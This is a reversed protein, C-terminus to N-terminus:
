TEDGVYIVALVMRALDRMWLWQSREFANSVPATFDLAAAVQCVRVVESLIAEAPDERMSLIPQASVVVGGLTYRLCKSYARLVLFKWQWFNASAASM